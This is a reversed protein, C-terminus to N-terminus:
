SQVQLRGKTRNEVFLAIKGAIHSHPHVPSALLGNGPMHLRHMPEFGDTRQHPANRMAEVVKQRGNHAVGLNHPHHGGIIGLNGVADL